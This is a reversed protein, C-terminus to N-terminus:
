LWIPKRILIRNNFLPIASSRWRTQHGFTWNPIKFPSTSFDTRSLMLCSHAHFSTSINSSFTWVSRVWKTSDNEKFCTIESTIPNRFTFLAMLTKVISLSSFLSYQPRCKQASPYQTLVVPRFPPGILSCSLHRNLFSLVM